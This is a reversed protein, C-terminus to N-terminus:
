RSSIRALQKTYKDIQQISTDRLEQTVAKKNICTFLHIGEKLVLKSIIIDPYKEIFINMEDLLKFMDMDDFRNFKIVNM